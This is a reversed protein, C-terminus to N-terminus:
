SSQSSDRFFQACCDTCQWAPDDSRNKFSGIAIGGNDLASELEPIFVPMGRLLLAIKVSGCWPCHSPKRRTRMKMAADIRIDNAESSSTPMANKM